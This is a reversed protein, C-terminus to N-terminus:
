NPDDRRTGQYRWPGIPRGDLFLSASARLSGDPMVVAADLVQQVHHPEMPVDEGRPGEAEADGAIELVSPDFNIVINCPAHFGAAHYIRSGFVDAATAREPQEHGDFKLLWGRGQPDRIIFGPNAGNPKADTVLWPGHEPDLILDPCAGRAADELSFSRWGLRNEFWSSDAVEDYANVNVSPRAYDAALYRNLPRFFTQDLFDWAFGSFYSEPMEEVAGRDPDEWLTPADSFMRIQPSACATVSLAVAALLSTRVLLAPLTSRKM